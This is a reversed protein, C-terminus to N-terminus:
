DTRLQCAPIFQIPLPFSFDLIAVAATLGFFVESCFARALIAANM